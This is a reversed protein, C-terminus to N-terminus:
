KEASEMSLYKQIIAQSQKPRQDFSVSELKNLSSYFASHESSNQNEFVILDSLDRDIERKRKMRFQKSSAAQDKKAQKREAATDEIRITKM